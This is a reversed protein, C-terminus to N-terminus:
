EGELALVPSVRSASWAPPSVLALVGVLVIVFIALPRWPEAFATVPFATTHALYGDIVFQGYIGPVVGTLCGAGLLLLSESLLIRRLRSPRSGELRLGSLSSRREWIASALAAVLALVAAVALLMSIDALRSLGEGAIASFRAARTSASIVELGSSAGLEREITSRALSADAGPALDVGLATASHASWYRTYDATSLLLAGATWGLNTTIAAVRFSTVGAPTPIRLREGVHVHEETAIPQSVAVWGGRRLEASARAVSGSVIERELLSEDSSPPQAIAWVRRGGLNMFESQFSHVGTVGPTHAIRSAYAGPAFSVVGATDHPNMVWLAAQGSYTQAFSRLSALLDARAGGLAVTGFLAIAGTAALALSRVTTARLATLAVPLLTTRQVRAPAAGALGTVAALALPVALVTALALLAVSVIAASPALVFLLTAPVVLSLAGAFLRRQVKRSLANGPTGDDFYVADVARHRRLDLLPLASALAVALIGAALALLVPQLGIVTGEGLVFTQALYGPSEHFATGSLAYGVLLGVVSAAAGLCLGEFLVMAVIASRKAGDIRLDAIAQRRDPVTLLMANFAFLLGLLSAIVAFFTTAQGAPILAQRLLAVDEDAAAVEASGGSIGRLEQRVRADQGPKTQVLVRSIRGKLGALRQLSSLPMIATRTAALAGAAERGVVASVRLHYSSGRVNTTVFEPAGENLPTAAIGLAKAVADTLGIERRGFVAGPLTHALGDLTALSVNAGVVDVTVHRGRPGILTATQELAPAAQKVGPLREVRGLVRENLGEPGRARLQLTAPGIVSHVVQETSGAISGNAVLVAFVLAVAIAVGIGALLEQAAHARLRRRYLYLLAYPRM